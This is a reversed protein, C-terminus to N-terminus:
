KDLSAAILSTGVERTYQKKTSTFTQIIYTFHKLSVFRRAVDSDRTRSIRIRFSYLTVNRYM